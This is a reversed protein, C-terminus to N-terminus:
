AALGLPRGAAIWAPLRAVQWAYPDLGRYQARRILDGFANAEFFAHRRLGVTLGADFAVHLNGPVLAAFRRCDDLMREWVAPAALTRLLDAEARRGGLDLNTIPGAATRLVAHAPEGAVVLLRLDCPRGGVAAKPVWREVHADQALVADVLAAAEAGRYRRLRHTHHLGDPGREAASLAEIGDRGVALAVIGAAGSGYRPKVFVRALGAARMAAALAAFSDAPPLARPVPLGAAAMAAHCARKDYLLAVAEPDHTMAVGSPLVTRALRLAAALGRQLAHDPRLRTAAGPEEEAGGLRALARRIRPDAGPSEVRLLGRGEPFLAALREPAAALSAYDLVRAPPLGARVLAASFGQAREDDGGGLIACPGMLPGMVADLPSGAAGSM